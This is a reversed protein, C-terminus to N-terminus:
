EVLFELLFIASTRFIFLAYFYIFVWVNQETLIGVSIVDMVQTSFIHSKEQEKEFLERKRSVEDALCGTKLATPSKVM